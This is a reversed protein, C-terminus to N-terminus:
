RKDETNVSYSDNMQCTYDGKISIHIQNNSMPDQATEFKFDKVWIGQAELIRSIESIIIGTNM